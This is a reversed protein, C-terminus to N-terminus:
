RVDAEYLWLTEQSMEVRMVILSSYILPCYASSWYAICRDVKGRVLGQPELM